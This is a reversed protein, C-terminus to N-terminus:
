RGFKVDTPPAERASVSGKELYPRLAEALEELTTIEVPTGNKSTKILM